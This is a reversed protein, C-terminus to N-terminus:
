SPEIIATRMTSFFAAAALAALAVGGDAAGGGGAALGASYPRVARRAEYQSDYEAFAPYGTRQPRVARDTVGRSYQIGAKAPM